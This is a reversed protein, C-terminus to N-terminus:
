EGTRNEIHGGSQRIAVDLRADHFHDTSITFSPAMSLRGGQVSLQEPQPMLTNVFEPRVTPPPTSQSFGLLSTALMAAVAACQLKRTM